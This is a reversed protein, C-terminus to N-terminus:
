WSQSREIPSQMYGRFAAEETVGAVVSAMTLLAIATVAPMTPPTVIQSVPMVILRAMVATLALVAGFGILGTIIAAAWVSPPLPRARLSERRTAASDSAGIAGSIFAWYVGLYIAMPIIAWPVSPLFRLNLPALVIAWLLNGALLVGVGVAVASAITSM